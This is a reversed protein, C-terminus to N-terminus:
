FSCVFRYYYIALCVMAPRLDRWSWAIAWRKTKNGQVLDTVAYNQNGVQELKELLAVVSGLKGLMTTYWQVKDQLVLSENIMRTIFAIEGGPTVM